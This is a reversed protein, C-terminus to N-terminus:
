FKFTYGLMGFVGFKSDSGITDGGNLYQYKGGVQVNLGQWINWYITGVMAGGFGSDSVKTAYGPRTANTTMEAYSYLIRGDVRMGIYKNFPMIAGIGILPSQYTRDKVSVNTLTSAWVWNGAITETDKKTTRNYGVIVYPNFRPSAKFLWRATFEQEEQDQTMKSTTAYNSFQSSVDWSGKRYSYAFTFSDYGFTVTGGPMGGSITGTSYKAGSDYYRNYEGAVYWYEGSLGILWKKPQAVTPDQLVIEEEIVRPQEQVVPKDLVIPKDQAFLNASFLGFFLFVSLVLIIGNRKM